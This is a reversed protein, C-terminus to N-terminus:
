EEMEDESDILLKASPNQLISFLAANRKFSDNTEVGEKLAQGLASLPGVGSLRDALRSLQERPAQYIRSSLKKVPRGVWTGAKQAGLYSWAKGTEGLGSLLGLAKKGGAQSEQTQVVSERLAADDAYEKLKKLFGKSEFNIPVGETELQKLAKQLNSFSTQVDKSSLKGTGEILSEYAKTLKLEPDKLNSYFLDGLEVPYKGMIPQEYVSQMFKSYDNAAKAYEPISNKLNVDLDKRFSELLKTLEDLEMSGYKSKNNRDIIDSVQKMVSKVEKPNLSSYNRNSLISLIDKVKEDKKLSPLSLAIEDFSKGFNVVADNMNLKLDINDAISKNVNEGLLNRTKELEDVIEGTRKLNLQSFPTGGEVGEIGSQIARESRPSVGYEMGYKEFASSLQRLFPTDEYIDKAFEGVPALAKKALPIAVDTAAQGAGGIVAGIAGGAAVDSLVESPTKGESQGLAELGVGLGAETASKAIRGAKSAQALQALKTGKTALNLAGGLAQGSPLSGLFNGGGYLWPSEKEAKKFASRARKLEDEYTTEPQEVQFGQQRLQENVDAEGSWKSILPDALKGAMAALEDAFGLTAGQAAGLSFDKLGSPEGTVFPTVTDSVLEAGSEAASTILDGAKTFINKKPEKMVADFAAFDEDSMAMVSDFASFDDEKNAM